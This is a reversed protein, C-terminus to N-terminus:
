DRPSPSTYLLCDTHPVLRYTITKGADSAQITYTKSGAAGVNAGDVTWQITADTAAVDTADGDPDTVTYAATLVDGDVPEGGSGSGNYTIVATAVTPKRGKVTDTEPSTVNTQANAMSATGILAAFLATKLPFRSVNHM